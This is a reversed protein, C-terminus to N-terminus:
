DRALQKLTRSRFLLAQQVRALALGWRTEAQQTSEGEAVLRIGLCFGPRKENAFSCGSILLVARVADATERELLEKLASALEAYNKRESNFSSDAFVVTLRSAFEDARDAPVAAPLDSKTTARSTLFMSDAGNVAALFNRLPLHKRAGSVQDVANPNARLDLYKQDPPFVAAPSSGEIEEVINVRM